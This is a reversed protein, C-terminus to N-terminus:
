FRKFLLVVALAVPGLDGFGLAWFAGQAPMHGDRGTLAHGLAM